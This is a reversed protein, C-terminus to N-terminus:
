TRRSRYHRGRRGLSREGILPGLEAPQVDVPLHRRRFRFQRRAAGSQARHFAIRIFHLRRGSHAAYTRAWCSSSLREIVMRSINGGGNARDDILLADKRLQPYYWKIFERIGDAGMDPLHIYGIRGDRSSMWGRRNDEVWDFYLLNTESALPQYTVKRAGRDALAHHEATM